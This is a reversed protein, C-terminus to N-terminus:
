GAAPLAVDRAADVLARLGDNRGILTAAGVYYAFKHSLPGIHDAILVVHADPQEEILKACTLWGSEDKLDVDLIVMNPSLESVLERAEVGSATVHVDWRLRLFIQRVLATYLPDAHALLLTPRTTYAPEKLALM